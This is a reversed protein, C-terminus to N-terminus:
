AVTCYDGLVAGAEITAFAHVTVGVGLRAEPSVAALPHISVFRGERGSDSARRQSLGFHGSSTAAM